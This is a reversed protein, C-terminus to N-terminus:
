TDRRKDKERALRAEEFRRARNALHMRILLTKTEETLDTAAEIEAIIPDVPLTDPIVLEGPDVGYDVLVEGLSRGGSSAERQLRAVAETGTVNARVPMEDPKAVGAFVMMEGLSYGLVRGMARLADIEPVRGDNLIRSLVSVGIGAENAFSTQGGRESLYGRRRLEERLWPGFQGAVNGM